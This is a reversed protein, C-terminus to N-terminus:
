ADRAFGDPSVAEGTAFMTGKLGLLMRDNLLRPDYVGEADVAVTETLVCLDILHHWDRNNRALSSAELAFVAGFDGNCVATLLRAFGARERTGTGSIGLDDDIVVVSKFGLERARGELAYQRRGSKTNNRVQQLTSQRVYVFASRSLHRDNLKDTM